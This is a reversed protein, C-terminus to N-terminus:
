AWRICKCSRPHKERLRLRLRLCSLTANRPIYINYINMEDAGTSSDLLIIAKPQWSSIAALSSSVNYGALVGMEDKKECRM